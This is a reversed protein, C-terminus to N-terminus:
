TECEKLLDPLYYSFIEKEKEITTSAGHGSYVVTRAPLRALRRLSNTMDKDSGGALDTRGYSGAFLTDGTFVIKENALYLSIGGRTHGPTHIVALEIQGFRIIDGEYLLRDAPPSIAAELVVVGCGSITRAKTGDTDLRVMEEKGCIPCRHPVKFAPSEQAGLWPDTLLPADDRHILIDAQTKEKLARNGSTHDPHGHTNVIYRLSLGSEGIVDIVRREEHQGIGPDIVISESTKECGVIYCNTPMYGVELCQLIVGM